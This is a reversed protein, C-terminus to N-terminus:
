SIMTLTGWTPGEIVPRKNIDSGFLLMPIIDAILAFTAVTYKLITGFFGPKEKSDFISKYSYSITNIIKSDSM